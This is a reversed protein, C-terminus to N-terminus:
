KGQSVKCYYKFTQKVFQKMIYTKYFYVHTSVHEFTEGTKKHKSIAARCTSCDPQRPGRGVNSGFCQKINALFSHAASNARSAKIRLTNQMYRMNSCCKKREPCIRTCPSLRDACPLLLMEEQKRKCLSTFVQSNDTITQM